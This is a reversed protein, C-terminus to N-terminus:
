SKETDTEVFYPYDQRMSVALFLLAKGWPFCGAPQAHSPM